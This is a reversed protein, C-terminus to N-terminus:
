EGPEMKAIRDAIEKERKVWDIENERYDKVIGKAKERAANWGEIFKRNLISKTTEASQQKRGHKEAELVLGPWGANNVAEREAEEIQAAVMAVREKYLEAWPALFKNVIKEAREQSTM